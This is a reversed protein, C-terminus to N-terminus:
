FGTSILSTQKRSRTALEKSKAEAQLNTWAGEHFRNFILYDENSSYLVIQLVPM